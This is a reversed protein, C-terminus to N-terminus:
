GRVKAQHLYLGNRDQGKETAPARLSPRLLPLLPEGRPRGVPIFGMGLILGATGKFGQILELTPPDYLFCPILPKFRPGLESVRALPLEPM